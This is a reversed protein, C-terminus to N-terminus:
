ETKLTTEFAAKAATTRAESLISYYIYNGCVWVTIEDLKPLEDPNYSVLLDRYRLAQGEVYTEVVAKLEDIKASDKVHFVGVEDINIDSQESVIIHYDHVNSLLTQYNDGWTSASIYADSVQRYGEESPIATKISEMVQASTLDDKYKTGNCSTFVSLLMLVALLLPLIRKMNM